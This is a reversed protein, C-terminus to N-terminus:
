EKPEYDRLRAGMVLGQEAAIWEALALGVRVRLPGLPLAAMIEERETEARGLRQLADRTEDSLHPM